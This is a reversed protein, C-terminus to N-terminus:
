KRLFKLKSAFRWRRDQMLVRYVRAHFEEHSSFYVYTLHSHRSLTQILDSAQERTLTVTDNNIDNFEDSFYAIIRDQDERIQTEEEKAKPILYTELDNLEKRIHDPNMLSHDSM